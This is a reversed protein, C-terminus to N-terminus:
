MVHIVDALSTARAVACTEPIFLATEPYLIAKGVLWLAGLYAPSLPLNTKISGVLASLKKKQSISSTTNKESWGCRQTAFDKNISSTPYSEVLWLAGNRSATFNPLNSLKRGVV